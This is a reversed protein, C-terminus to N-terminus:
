ATAKTILALAGMNTDLTAPIMGPVTVVSSSLMFPTLGRSWSVRRCWLLRDARM